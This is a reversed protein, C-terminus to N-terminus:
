NWWSAFFGDGTNDNQIAYTLLTQITGDRYLIREPWWNIFGEDLEAAPTFPMYFIFEEGQNLGYPAAGIYRVGDEIWEADEETECTLEELRMSCAYDSLRTIQGFRGKFKCIYSTGNPYEPGASAEGDQYTGEFSGDPYLTLETGWAGAGSAFMFKVPLVDEPLGSEPLSPYLAYNDLEGPDFIVPYIEPIETPDAPGIVLKFELTSLLVTSEDLWYNVLEAFAEMKGTLALVPLSFDVTRSDEETVQGGELSFITCNYSAVGQFMTPLYEMLYDKGNKRYLLVSTWGTHAYAAERDWIVTGDQKIVELRYVQGEYEEYVRIRETEGDHDLDVDDLIITDLLGNDETPQLSEAGTLEDNGASPSGSAEGSIADNDPSAQGASGANQTSRFLEDFEPFADKRSAPNTLFCLAVAVCVAMAALIVWFTPKKYSLISKVREKVGIEGFAPPCAAISKHATSCLLLAQSYDARQHRDLTRIVKEDCALEIDRCFLVYSLWVLPHFWHISLLLIGLLKWWHDKRQIHAEEHAIVYELSNEDMGFPLYIRPRVIGFVFPSSIRESVYIPNRLIVATNVRRKLRLWSFASYGAMLLTGTLWIGTLIDVFSLTNKGAPASSESGHIMSQGDAAPRKRNANGDEPLTNASPLAETLAPGKQGADLSPLVTTIAPAAPILSLPSEVFVPCVLRLAVIGWLLVSIWKPARRLLLRALMVALILWVASFNMNVIQLFLERM